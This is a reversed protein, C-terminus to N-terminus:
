SILLIVNSPSIALTSSNLFNFFGTPNSPSPEWLLFLMEYPNCRLYDIFEDSNVSCYDPDFDGEALVAWAEEKFSEVFRDAELYGALYGVGTM